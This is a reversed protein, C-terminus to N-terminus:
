SMKEAVDQWGINEFEPPIVGDDRMREVVANAAELDNRIKEAIVTVIAKRFSGDACDTSAAVDYAKPPQNFLALGGRSQKGFETYYKRDSMLVQYASVAQSMVLCGLDSGKGSAMKKVFWDQDKLTTVPQRTDIKVTTETQVAATKAKKM